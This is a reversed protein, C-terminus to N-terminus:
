NANQKLNLGVQSSTPAKLLIKYAETFTELIRGLWKGLLLGIKQIFVISKNNVAL